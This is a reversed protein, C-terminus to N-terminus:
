AEPAGPWAATCFWADGVPELRFAAARNEDPIAFRAGGHERELLRQTGHHVVLLVDGPTDALEALYAALKGRGTPFGSRTEITPGAAPALGLGAYIAWATQGTRCRRTVITRVLRAGDGSLWVGTARSMEVGVPSLPSDETSNERAGHRVVYIRM